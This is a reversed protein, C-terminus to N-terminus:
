PSTFSARITTTSKEVNKTLKLEQYVTEPDAVNYYKSITKLALDKQGNVIYYYPSEHNVWTFLAIVAVIGFLLPFCIVLQYTWNDLLVQEPSDVNPLVDPEYAAVVVALWGVLEMTTFIVGFWRDPVVEEVFKVITVWACGVGFYNIM